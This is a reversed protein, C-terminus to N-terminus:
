CSPMASPTQVGDRQDPERDHEHHDRDGDGHQEPEPRVDRDREAPRQDAAEHEGDAPHGRRHQELEVDRVEGVVRVRVAREAADDDQHQPEVDRREHQQDGRLDHRDKHLLVLGLLDLGPALDRSPAGLLRRSARFTPRRPAAVWAIAGIARPGIRCGGFAVRGIRASSLARPSRALGIATLRSPRRLRSAPRHRLRPAVPRGIDMTRALAANPM